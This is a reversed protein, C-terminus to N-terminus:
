FQYGFFAIDRAHRKEVLKETEHDYYDRYNGRESTNVKLSETKIALDNEQIFRILDNELSEQRFVHDVAINENDDIVWDSLQKVLYGQPGRIAEPDELWHVYDVFEFDQFIQNEIKHGSHRGGPDQKIYHFWSVHWDWPNRVVSFTTAKNFDIRHARFVEQYELWTLHGAADELTLTPSKEIFPSFAKEVFSGGCKPTHIFYLTASNKFFLKRRTKLPVQM